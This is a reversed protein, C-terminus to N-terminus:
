ISDSQLGEQVEENDSGSVQNEESKQQLIERVEDRSMQLAVAMEGLVLKEAKRLFALDTSSLKKGESELREKKARITKSLKILERTSGEALTENYLNKIEKSSKDSVDILNISDLHEILDRANVATVIPRMFVRSDVPTYTKGESYVPSLVYYLTDSKIGSIDPVCIDEIRFIGDSGYMIVDNVKYM